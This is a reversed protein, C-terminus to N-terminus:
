KSKKPRFWLVFDYAKSEVKGTWVKAKGGEPSEGVEYIAKVSVKNEIGAEVKLKPESQWDADLRIPFIQQEGAAVLFTSPYNPSFIGPRRVLRVKKGDSLTIEFSINMAGWSNWDEFVKQADKSRNSLVVYFTRPKEDSIEILQKDDGSMAPVLSLEFPAGVAPEAGHAGGAFAMMLAWIPAKM